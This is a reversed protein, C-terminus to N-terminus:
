DKICRVSYGDGKPEYLRYVGSEFAGIMRSWASYVSSETTSWFIATTGLNYYNGGNDRYGSPLVTFGSSSFETNDTLSGHNWLGLSDALISGQNSGRLGTDDANSQTMGLYTELEKWDEDSPVRWGNPALNHSDAVAYWNYLAGNLDVLDPYDGYIAYAGTLTNAWDDNADLYPITTGDRYHKVKLNEAMWIQGGLEVTEYINGDIDTVTLEDESKTSTKECSQFILIMIVLALM